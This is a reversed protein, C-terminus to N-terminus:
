FYCMPNISNTAVWSSFYNPQVQRCSAILKYDSDGRFDIRHNLPLLTTIKPGKRLIKLSASNKKKLFPRNPIKRYSYWYQNSQVLIM